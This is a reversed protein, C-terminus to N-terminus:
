YSAIKKIKIERLFAEVKEKEVYGTQRYQTNATGCAAGMMLMDVESYGRSISIACGAIFSDGSGVTNVVKVVPHTVQYVGDKLGALAGAKGRSIIPCAIGMHKFYLVAQVLDEETKIPGSYASKIEDENPKIIYPKAELGKLFATGSTDLLVKKGERNAIEILIQYFNDQIGRPLSGSITVVDVHSVLHSFVKLYRSVEEETIVPGSELVETFTGKIPDTVNICIRTEGSIDSFGDVIGLSKINERIFAGNGGGLPGSATVNEGMLRAVRAVNLGKGGPSAITSTPRHVQGLQYNDVFYIKDIAPNMTIALIM